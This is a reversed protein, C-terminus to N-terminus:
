EGCRHFSLWKIDDMLVVGSTTLLEAFDNPLIGDSELKEFQIGSKRLLDISEQAYMDESHICIVFLYCYSWMDLEYENYERFKLPSM